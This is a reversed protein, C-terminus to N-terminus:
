TYQGNDKRLYKYLQYPTLLLPNKIGLFQKVQGVCTNLVFPYKSCTRPRAKVLYSDPIIVDEASTVFLEIEDFAKGYHIAKDGDLIILECHNIVPHLFRNWWRSGGNRFRVYVSSYM